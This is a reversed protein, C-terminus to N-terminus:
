TLEQEHLIAGGGTQRRVVPMQKIQQHQSKIEEFKQFYGLSITPEQWQYFRLTATAANHNIAQLIAEDCAM